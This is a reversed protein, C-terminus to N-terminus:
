LGRSHLLVCVICVICVVALLGIAAAIDSEGHDSEPDLYRIASWVERDSIIRHDNAEEQQDNSPANLTWWSTAPSPLRNFRPQRDSTDLRAEEGNRLNTLQRWSDCHLRSALCPSFVTRVSDSSISVPKFFANWRHTSLQLTSLEKVCPWCM